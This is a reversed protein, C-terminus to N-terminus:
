ATTAYPYPVAKEGELSGELLHPDGSLLIFFDALDYNLLFTWLISMFVMYM